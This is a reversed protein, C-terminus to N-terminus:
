KHVHESETSVSQPYNKVVVLIFTGICVIGALEIVASTVYVNVIVIVGRFASEVSVRVALRVTVIVALSL